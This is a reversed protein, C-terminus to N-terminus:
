DLKTGCEECFKDGNNYKTGCNPCKLTTESSQNAVSNCITANNTKAIIKLSESMSVFSDHMGLILYLIFNSMILIIFLVIFTGLGALFGLGGNNYNMSTVAGGVVFSLIITAILQVIVSFNIFFRGFGLIFNKM